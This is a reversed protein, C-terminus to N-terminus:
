GARSGPIEPHEERAQDNGPKATNVPRAREALHDQLRAHRFQYVPGVTRLINRSHADELFSMLRIPTRWRLFLQTFALVATSTRTYTLGAGLGLVTGAISGAILGTRIGVPPVATLAIVAGSAAGGVTGLGLSAPLGAVLMSGRWIAVGISIGAILGAGASGEYGAAVGGAIGTSLGVTLGAMLGSARGNRWSEHPSISVSSSITPESFIGFIGLGLGGAVAYALGVAIGARAGSALGMPLGATMGAPLGAMCLGRVTARLGYTQRLPRAAMYTPSWERVRLFLGAGVAVLIVATLLVWRPIAVFFVAAAIAVGGGLGIAAIRPTAPVWNCISWWQLDRTHDRNMRIALFSLIKKAAEFDYPLARGGPQRTYAVMLLRDLLHDVIQESSPAPVADCYQLLERIDFAHLYADRILTLALPSSLAQSLPSGPAARLRSTLQKWAPPPPDIQIRTLYAVATTASIGQLELAVAEELFGSRVADAVADNRALVVLRFDAHQSLASLALPRLPGPVEDLGDLIVSVKGAALLGGARERGARGSFMSPYTQQLSRTLWDRVSEEEPNWGHFTLMIPVPMVGRETDSACRRRELAVLVLLVAAASKGSGGAGVIMLRGSGLGGYVDYLDSIRGSRLRRGDAAHVGPLPKFRRSRVAASVPGAIALNSNRWRVPIPDYRMLGRDRAATNWQDDVLGALADALHDLSTERFITSKQQIKDLIRKILGGAITAIAAVYAGFTAAENQNSARWVAYVLWGAAGIVAGAAMLWSLRHRGRERIVAVQQAAGDGNAAPVAPADM